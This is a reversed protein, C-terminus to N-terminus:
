DSHDGEELQPFISQSEVVLGYWGPASSTLRVWVEDKDKDGTVVEGSQLDGKMFEPPGWDSESGGDAKDKSATSKDKEDQDPSLEEGDLVVCTDRVELVTTESIPDDIKMLDLIGVEPYMRGWM